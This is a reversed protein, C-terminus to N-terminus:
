LVGKQVDKSIEMIIKYVEGIRNKLCPDQSLGKVHDLVQNERNSDLITLRSQKKLQGIRKALSLRENLLTIIGEDIENIRERLDGFMQTQLTPTKM